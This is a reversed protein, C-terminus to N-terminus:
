AAGGGRRMLMFAGGGVVIVAAVVGIIIFIAASSGGDDEGDDTGNTPAPTEGEVPTNTAQSGNGGGDGGPTDVGLRYCVITGEFTCAEDSPPGGPGGGGIVIDKTPQQLLLEGDELDPNTDCEDGIQDRDEDHQNTTDEGNEILPCNDQRNLYGDLDQDSNTGETAPDDNPDCAADLGDGDLDGDNTIRPSGV